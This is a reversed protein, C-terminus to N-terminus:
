GVLVPSVIKENKAESVAKLVSKDEAAAVVIRRQARSRAVHLLQSLPKELYQM